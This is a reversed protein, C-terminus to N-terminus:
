KTSAHMLAPDLEKAYSIIPTGPREAVRKQQVEDKELTRGADLLRHFLKEQRALVDPTLGRGGSLQRAIDDAEKAMNDIKGLLDDKVGNNMGGLKQAIDRQQQALKQMQSSMASPSLDLPLLANSQGNIGSQQ